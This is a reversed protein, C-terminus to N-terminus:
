PLDSLKDEPKEILTREIHNLQMDAILSKKTARGWLLVAIVALTMFFFVYNGTVSYAIIVVLASTDLIGWRIVLATQYAAMRSRFSEIKRAQRIRLRYILFSLVMGGLVLFLMLWIWIGHGTVEEQRRSANLYFTVSLFFVLGVIFAAHIVHLTYFFAKVSTEEDKM